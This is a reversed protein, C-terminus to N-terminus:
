HDGFEREKPMKGGWSRCSNWMGKTNERCFVELKQVKTTLERIREADAEQRAEEELLRAERDREQHAIMEEYTQKQPM